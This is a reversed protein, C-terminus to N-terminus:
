VLINSVMIYRIDEEVDLEALFYSNILADVQHGLKNMMSEIYLPLTRSIEKEDEMCYSHVFNSYSDAIKISHLFHCIEGQKAREQLEIDM